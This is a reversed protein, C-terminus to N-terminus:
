APNARAAALDRYLEEHLAILAALSYRSMRKALRAQLEERGPLERVLTFAAALGDVDGPEVLLGGDDQVLDAIGRIRTGIVPVGLALSELVARSLGEQWSPLVTARSALVLPRVDDVEGLLHVRDTVGLARAREAAAERLPGAGAFALVLTPDLARALAEVAALPDKRRSLEGVFTLLRAEPPLRLRARQAEAAELLAPTSRYHELDLGIGPAPVLREPPVIRLRLAAERDYENIVILRDTWRGALREAAAYAANALRSGRPHFHFGHATYVVAPRRRRPLSRAVSRTLLSAIPTHVHVIDYAGDLLVRRLARPARLANGPHALRRSWPVRHVRDFVRAAAERLPGPGTAADVTWGLGRFHEAYPLLFGTLTGPVTTVVLLRLGPHRSPPASM